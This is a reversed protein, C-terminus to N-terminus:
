NSQEEPIQDIRLSKYKKWKQIAINVDFPSLDTLLSRAIHIETLTVHRTERGNLLQCGYNELSNFNNRPDALVDGTEGTRLEYGKKFEAM